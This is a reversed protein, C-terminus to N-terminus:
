RSVPPTPVPLPGPFPFPQNNGGSNNNGNGFGGVLAIVGAVVVAGGIIWLLLTNRSGETQAAQQGPNAPSPSPAPTAQANLIAPPGSPSAAAGSLDAPTASRSAAVPARFSSVVADIAPIPKVGNQDIQFLKLGSPLAASQPSDAFGDIAPVARAPLTTVSFAGAVLLPIAQRM